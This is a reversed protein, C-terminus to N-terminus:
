TQWFKFLIGEKGFIPDTEPLPVKEINFDVEPHEKEKGYCMDYNNSNPYAGVCIFNESSIIKKHSVGVPHIVVDGESVRFIKGKPGGYLIDCWGAIIVLVEHTNSHYHHYDYVGNTWANGWDNKKLLNKIETSSLHNINFVSKYILLSYRPNNPFYGQPKLIESIVKVPQNPQSAMM